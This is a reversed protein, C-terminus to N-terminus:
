IFYSIFHHRKHLHPFLPSKAIVSHWARTERRSNRETTLNSQRAQRVIHPNKSCVVKQRLSRTGGAVDAELPEKVEAQKMRGCSPRVRKLDRFM